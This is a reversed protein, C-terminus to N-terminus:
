GGPWAGLLRFLAQMEALQQELSACWARVQDLEARLQAVEEHLTRGEAEVM